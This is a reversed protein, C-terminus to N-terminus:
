LTLVALASTAFLGPNTGLIRRCLPIQPDAFSVTNFLNCIFFVELFGGTLETVPTTMPYGYRVTFATACERMLYRYYPVRVGV